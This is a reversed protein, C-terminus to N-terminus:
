IERVLTRPLTFSNAGYERCSYLLSMARGRVVSFTSDNCIRENIQEVMRAHWCHNADWIYIEVQDVGMERNLM